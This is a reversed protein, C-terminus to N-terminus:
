VRACSSMAPSAAFFGDVGGARANAIVREILSIGKIRILPKLGGKQRLRTGQGAAAILCKM